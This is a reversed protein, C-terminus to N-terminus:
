FLKDWFLALVGAGVVIGLSVILMLIVVWYPVPFKRGQKQIVQGQVLAPRQAYLNLGAQQVPAAGQPVAQEVVSVTQGAFSRVALEVVQPDYGANLFTVKAMQLTEGRGMANKLGGILDEQMESDAAEM